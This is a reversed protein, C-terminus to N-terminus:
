RDHYSLELQQASPFDDAGPLQVHPGERVDSASHGPAVRKLCFHTPGSFPSGMPRNAMRKSSFQCSGAKASVQQQRSKKQSRRRSELRVTEAGITAKPCRNEERIFPHTIKSTPQPRRLLASVPRSGTFILRVTAAKRLKRRCHDTQDTGFGGSANRTPKLVPQM